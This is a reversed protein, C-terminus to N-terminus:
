AARNPASRLTKSVGAEAEILRERRAIFASLILNALGDDEAALRLLDARPVQIVEGPDRVVATLYLRARTLMNLEGLFRGPGHVAIV